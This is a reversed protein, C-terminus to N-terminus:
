ALPRVTRGDNKPSSGAGGRVHVADSAWEGDYRDGGAWVMTGTGSRVSAAWEGEYRGGDRYSMTGLGAM